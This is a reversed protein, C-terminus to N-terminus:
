SASAASRSELWELWQTLVLLTWLPKAHDARREVHEELLELAAATRVRLLELRGEALRDRAWEHLPGRLWQSLPVSLGRKRRYVISGPLYRRAYRKLFVKTRFGRVRDSVPFTAAFEMVDRDLFPARPELASGMAARDGKTLLGEALSTELDMRQLLDLLEGEVDAVPDAGSTSCGLRDLLAPTLSSTWLVHRAVGDMGAGAVFRKLLFSMSVKKDSVPWRRVMSTLLTRFPPPLRAYRDSMLAGIYTPYGGFVEDGGEGVLVM